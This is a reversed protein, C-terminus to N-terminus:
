LVQKVQAKHAKNNIITHRGVNCTWAMNENEQRLSVPWLEWVFVSPMIHFNHLYAAYSFEIMELRWTSSYMNKLKFYTTSGSQPLGM